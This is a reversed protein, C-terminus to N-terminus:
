PASATGRKRYADRERLALDMIEAPVTGGRMRTAFQQAMARFEAQGSASPKNVKLGRKVMEALAARDQGPIQTELKKEGAACARKVAARDAASLKDWVAKRIVLGGVLPALGADLMHPTTRFWQLMMVGLPTLPLADVMGTQLGTLIDTMALPVPQFGLGKWAQVMQDDGAPVFLKTKKLEAVSTVPTKTFFYLWGAHGWNLLVFGKAELRKELTPQMRDIVHLLEPYSEFLMPTAFVMFAPDIQSLGVVTIAGAQLQGIRMKRVMDSEDGAVGGPYIRMTVRSQTGKSWQDGMDLLVKHWVTGEPVLTALRIVTNAAHSPQFAAPAALLLALVAGGVLTSRRRNM